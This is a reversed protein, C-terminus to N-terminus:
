QRLLIPLYLYIYGDVRYYKIGASPHCTNCRLNYATNTVEGFSGIGDQNHIIGMDAYTMAPYAVGNATSKVGHPDHCTACAPKSDKSGNGDSDWNVQNM